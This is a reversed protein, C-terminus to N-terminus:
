QSESSKVCEPLEGCGAPNAIDRIIDLDLNFKGPLYSVEIVISPQIAYFRHKRGNEINFYTCGNLTINQGKINFDIFVRGKVVYFLNHKYTHHHFSSYGGNKIRLIDVTVNTLRVLTHRQGWIKEEIM